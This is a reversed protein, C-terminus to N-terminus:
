IKRRWKEISYCLGTKSGGKQIIAHRVFDAEYEPFFTDADSVDLDIRTVYLIDTYPLLLKYVQEGGIVMLPTKDNKDLVAGLSALISEGHIPKHHTSLVTINRGPLQQNPISMLTNKGVLLEGHEVTMKRFFQMDEPLSWPLGNEKGIANNNAHAVIMKM